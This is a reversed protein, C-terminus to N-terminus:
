GEAKKSAKKSPTKEKEPNVRGASGSAVLRASLDKDEVDVHDGAKADILKSVEKIELKM